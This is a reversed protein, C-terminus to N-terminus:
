AHVESATAELLLLIVVLLAIPMLVWASRTLVASNAAEMLM